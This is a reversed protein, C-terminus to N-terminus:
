IGVFTGEFLPISNENVIAYYFPHDATFKVPSSYAVHQLGTSASAKTGVENVEIVAKHLVKGIAIHEPSDFMNSFDANSFMSDLGMKSLVENLELDLEAKFKPLTIHISGSRQKMQLTLYQMCVFKLKTLLSSLGTRANPLIILLSLDSNAYPLRVASAELDEFWGYIARGRKFMMQLKISHTQDTYFDGEKTNEPDFPRVWSGDFHIASLLFLRTDSNLVGPKVLDTIANETKSKVWNNIIEMARDSKRFDINEAKSLFKNTLVDNFNDKVQYGDMIYFKNAIKLIDSEAYKALISHFNDAVSELPQGNFGLGKQLDVATKGAAGFSAMAVCTQISFPSFILNQAGYSKFIEGFLNNNFSELGNYFQSENTTPSSCVSCLLLNWLLLVWCPITKIGM